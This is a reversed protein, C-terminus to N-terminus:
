QGKQNSTKIISEFKRVVYPDFKYGTESSIIDMAQTHTKAHHYPRTDTMGDYSDAVAIIRSMIPIQEKSLQHPYGTGCYYEHHHLVAEAIVDGNEIMLKKVIKHGIQPHTKMVDWEDPNFQTPKLLIEDRIGIKGIDHFCSSMKLYNLDTESLHCAKGIEESLGIVRQSHLETHEDRFKLACILADACACLNDYNVQSDNM